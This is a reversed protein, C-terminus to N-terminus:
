RTHRMTGTSAVTGAGLAKLKQLVLASQLVSSFHKRSGARQMDVVGGGPFRHTRSVQVCSESQRPGSLGGPVTKQPPGSRAM